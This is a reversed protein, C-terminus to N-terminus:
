QQPQPPPVAGNNNDAVPLEPAKTPSLPHPQLVRNMQYRHMAIGARKGDLNLKRNKVYPPWPDITQTAKNVAIADGVGRTVFEVRDSEDWGGLAASVVALTSLLAIKRLPRERFKMM